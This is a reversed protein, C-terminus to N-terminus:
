LWDALAAANRGAIRGNILCDATACSGLRVAGHIGGTAEGAAYLGPIPKDTVTDLVEANLTTRLGGMCHHVKPMLKAVYWPGQGLPKQQKNVYRGLEDDHGQKIWQNVREIQEKLEQLPINYAKSVEELTNFKHVVKRELQREMMGPRVLDYSEKCGADGLSICEHGLSRLRIIADARVKRNAEENVFRKGTTTDLWLGAMAVHASWAWAIGFGKEEPSTWPGCQIWDTQILTAGIREAERWAEGTAGPQNTTQYTADLRPDHRTRYAVDAGFGGYCLVVAKRAKIFKVKGSDPKPFRYGERVQLGKVRGDADRIIREMFVRTRPKVGLKELYDVEKKVIASGSGNMTLACRPVSHGGETKLRDLHWEVGLVKTTWDYTPLALEALQKVKAPDALYQGERLMDEALQEPSDKLGENIQAPSGPVSMIGGNIISNGGITPMKEIVIVDAGGEKAEIAAALGAFGSGVVLVDTEEDWKAPMPDIAKAQASTALLGVTTAAAGSVLFQRRNFTTM